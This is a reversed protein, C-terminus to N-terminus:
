LGVVTIEEPNTFNVGSAQRWVYYTGPDLMLTETYGTASTYVTGAVVHDGAEDSTIWVAAGDVPNPGNMCRIRVAESGSGLVSSGTTWAADGRDRIAQLSDTADDYTGGIDPDVTVDKRAISQVLSLLKAATALGSVAATIHAELASQDAPDSPLNDTKAKIAAIETDVYGTLTAISALVTDDAAALATALEANTPLANLLDDVSGAAPAGGSPALKMADRVDQPDVSGAWESTAGFSGADAHGSRAADWVADEVAAATLVATGTTDDVAVGLAVQGAVPVACTGVKDGLDFEVGLRVDAEDPWDATATPDTLTLTAGTDSRIFIAQNAAADPLMKVAGVTPTMGSPGYQIAKVRTVQGSVNSAQVGPVSSAHTGGPGYDNGVARGVTITGAVVQYAGPALAGAQADGTV